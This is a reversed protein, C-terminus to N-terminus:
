ADIFFSAKQALYNLLIMLFRLGTSGFMVVVNPLLYFCEFHLIKHMM